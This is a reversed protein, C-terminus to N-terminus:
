VRRKQAASRGRQVMDQMNESKTGAYLHDPNICPPNDCHHCVDLGEPIPGVHEEYSCRHARKVWVKGHSSGRIRGYGDKDRSGIWEWCGSSTVEYKELKEAMPKVSGAIM